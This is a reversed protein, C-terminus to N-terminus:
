GPLHVVAPEDDVQVLRSGGLELDAPEDDVSTAVEDPPDPGAHPDGLDPATDTPPRPPPQAAPQPAAPSDATPRPPPAAKSAEDIHDIQPRRPAEDCTWHYCTRDRVEIARRLAGRFFRRTGQRRRGTSPTDFVIREFDADTLWSAALRPTIVTRNWLELIPGTSTELGCVITFLPAPRQGDKPATRARIAM